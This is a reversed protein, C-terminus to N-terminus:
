KLQLDFGSRNFFNASVNCLQCLDKLPFYYLTQIGQVSDLGNKVIMDLSARIIQPQELTIDDDLPEHRKWNKQVLMRNLRVCQEEDFLELAKCRQIICAISAKWRSKLAILSNARTSVVEEIFSEKPMLFAGAFLNAEKEIRNLIKKDCLEESSLYSHMLIHGLEHSLSFRDRCCSIKDNGLFIFPRGDICKHCADVKKEGVSMRAIVIGNKEIVHMLNPIPGRGLNWHDRLMNALIEIDEMTFENRNTLLDTVPLSLKPLNLYQQIYDYIHGIWNCKRDVAMRIKSTSTAYSRFFTTGYIHERYSDVFFFEVPFDLTNSIKEIVKESPISQGQEYRSIAQRTVGVVGALESMNYGRAERAETIKQPQIKGTFM